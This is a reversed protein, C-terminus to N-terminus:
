LVPAEIAQLVERTDGDYVFAVVTCNAPVFEEALIHKYSNVVSAPNATGTTAINSGWTSNIVSRLIHQHVYDLINPVTGVDANNNRQPKIIGSETLVVVLKLNRDVTTIFNTKIHTCVKRQDADYFNIMQLDVLPATALANAVATGWGEPAIIHGGPYGIRNVMGKPNGANSIGFFEDWTNGAPTRFDYTYDGSLTPNAFPGAHIALLVVQEGHTEKLGRAILAAKPCNVCTHGTYDELLVRKKVVSVAPFDPVQCTTDAQEVPVTFPEEIKNCAVLYLLGAVLAFVPVLLKINKIKM